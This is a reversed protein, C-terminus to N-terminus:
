DEDKLTAYQMPQLAEFRVLAKRSAYLAAVETPTTAKPMEHPLPGRVAKLLLLSGQLMGLLDEGIPWAPQEFGCAVMAGQYGTGIGHLALAHRVRPTLAWDVMPAFTGAVPLLAGKPVHVGVQSHWWTHVQGAAIETCWPIVKDLMAADMRTVHCAGLAIGTKAALWEYCRVRMHRANIVADAAGTDPYVDKWSGWLADFEGLAIHRLERLKPTVAEAVWLGTKGAMVFGGCAPFRTCRFRLGTKLSVFRLRAGCDPCIHPPDM